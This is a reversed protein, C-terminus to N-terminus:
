VQAQHFTTGSPYSYILTKDSCAILLSVPEIEKYCTLILPEQEIHILTSALQTINTLSSHVDLQKRTVKVENGSTTGKSTGLNCEYTYMEHIENNASHGQM